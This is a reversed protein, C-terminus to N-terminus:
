AEQLQGGQPDNAPPRMRGSRSGRPRVALALTTMGLAAFGAEVWPGTRAAWAAPGPDTRVAVDEVVTTAVFEETQAQVSGDPRIVGSIGSTAAVLVPVGHEVARLRSIAFQQEPQGTSGYTANNTQVVIAQAGGDVVDRTEPDYAIEFCIVVGATLPGIQLVGPEQGRTFDRPVLALRGIWPTLLERFPVYEGFPVPHRKVYREGPGTLPDWVIASNEVMTGDPTAVLGGVLTPVGVAAVAADILAVATPEALPDLDSANEPWIVLDPQPVEDAAVADALALTADVHNRLVQERRGYFEIGLQPVNGQVLAVTVTERDTRGREAALVAAQAGVATLGVVALVLVAAGLSRAQRAQAARVLAAAGAGLLAVAATVLASGGAASLFVLPTDVVGHALRGWPFGGFPIRGRLAETLVWVGAAWLPWGRLRSAGALGAGLVAWFSAQLATLLLWADVGIVRMWGLVLGFSVLGAVVGLLAGERLRRDACVGTLVAVGVLLWWWQDHPAQGLAILAGAVAALLSRLVM